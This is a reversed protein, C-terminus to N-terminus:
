VFTLKVYYDYFDIDTNLVQSVPDVKVKRVFHMKVTDQISAIAVGHELTENYYVNFSCKSRLNWNSGEDRITDLVQNIFSKANTVILYRINPVPTCTYKLSESETFCIRDSICLNLIKNTVQFNAIV